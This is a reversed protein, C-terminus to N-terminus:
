SAGGNQLATELRYAHDQILGALLSVSKNDLLQTDAYTLAQAISNICNLDHQVDSCGMKKTAWELPTGEIDIPRREDQTTM